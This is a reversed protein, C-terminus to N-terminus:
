DKRIGLLRDLAVRPPAVKPKRQTVGLYYGGVATVLVVVAGAAVRLATALEDRQNITLPRAAFDKLDAYTSTGTVPIGAPPAHVPIPAPQHVAPAASTSATATAGADADSRTMGQRNREEESVRVANATPHIGEGFRSAYVQTFEAGFFSIQASFYVWLLMVVLSGAAGFRDLVSSNGLYLGIAFKGITFLLATLLAGPLVDRWRIRADPVYKFVLAFLITIVIVSVLLNVAQMIWAFGPFLGSLWNGLASLLTSIILSVLLMFGVGVVMAFALFRTWIVRKIGANPNPKVEWMTNLADHLQGFVATAGLFLTVVGIVTGVVGGGINQSSEVMNGVLRAADPGILSSVQDNLEGTALAPDVFLGVLSIAIVLIPALSFATYYALAAALRPVKDESWEQVTLKLINFLKKM